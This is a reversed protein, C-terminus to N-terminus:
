FLGGIADKMTAMEEELRAFAADNGTPRTANTREADSPFDATM